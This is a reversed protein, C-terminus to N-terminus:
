KESLDEPLGTVRLQQDPRDDCLSDHDVLPEPPRRRGDSGEKDISRSIWGIGGRKTGAVRQPPHGISGLRRFWSLGKLVPRRVLLDSNIALFFALASRLSALIAAAM